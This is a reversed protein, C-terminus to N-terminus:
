KKEVLICILALIILFFVSLVSAILLTTLTIAPPIWLPSLVWWWSWTIVKCLKLIIFIVTLLATLNITIKM